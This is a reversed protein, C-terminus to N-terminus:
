KANVTRLPNLKVRQYWYLPDYILSQTLIISYTWSTTIWKIYYTVIYFPDSSGPCVTAILRGITFEISFYESVSRNVTMLVNTTEDSYIFDRGLLISYLIDLYDQWIKVIYESFSFIRSKMVMCYTQSLHVRYTVPM